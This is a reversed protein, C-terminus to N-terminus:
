QLAVATFKTCYVTGVLAYTWSETMKVDALQAGGAAGKLVQFARIQRSNVGIPILLLLQFGCEEADVPRGPGAAVSTDAARPTEFRVPTSQCAAASAALLCALAYRVKGSIM